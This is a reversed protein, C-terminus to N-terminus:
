RSGGARASCSQPRPAAHPRRPQASRWCACTEGSPARWRRYGPRFGRPRTPFPRRADRNTEWLLVGHSAVNAAVVVVLGELHNRATLLHREVGKFAGNLRKRGPAAMAFAHDDAVAH